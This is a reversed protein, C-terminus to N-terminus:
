VKPDALNSAAEGTKEVEAGGSPVKPTAAEEAKSTQAEVVTRAVEM